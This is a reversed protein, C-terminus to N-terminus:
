FSSMWRSASAAGTNRGASCNACSRAITPMTSECWYSRITVLFAMGGCNDQAAPAAALITDQAARLTADFYLLASAVYQFLNAEDAGVGLHHRQVQAHTWALMSIREFTAPDHYKDALSLIQERSGAVMTSFALHVTMGPAVRVRTRLSFIPDLVAGATNSLPRGDMVSNPNRVTRGRGLFRARDTEYEVVGSLTPICLWSM